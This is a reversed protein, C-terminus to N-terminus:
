AAIRGRRLRDLTNETRCDARGERPAGVLGRPGEPLPAWRCRLQPPSERNDPVLGLPRRCSDPRSFSRVRGHVFSGALPCGIAISYAGNSAQAPPVELATGIDLRLAAVGRGLRVLEADLRLVESFTDVAAMAVGSELIYNRKAYLALGTKL